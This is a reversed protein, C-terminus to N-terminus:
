FEIREDRSYVNFRGDRAFGVLTAGFNEAVRIALSSPAGVAVVVPVHAMLAKQMLEFSARGSLVVATKELPLDGELLQAGVLKDMANHRGVDEQLDLLEGDFSFLGAAHIGGTDDFVSQAERLRDPLECVLDAEIPMEGPTLTPCSQVDLAEISAKGCVGCSSTTYFHRELSGLDLDVDDAVQLRLINGESADDDGEGEVREVGVIQDASEIIGEGYLFGAALQADRGPTRMTVSISKEAPNGALEFGLRIELPEEVAAIDGFVETQGDRYRVVEVAYRGERRQDEDAAEM